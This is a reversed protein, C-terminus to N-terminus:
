WALEHLFRIATLIGRHFYELEMYENAAHGGEGVGYGLDFIPIGLQRQMVGILPVCGGARYAQATAGWEAQYARQLADIVAGDHLLTAHWNATSAIVEIHATPTAFGLVHRRFLAMVEDPVLNPVVRMSVKFGAEAPIVTMGGAGQHGGWVGNVDCTPLRTARDGFAAFSSGWLETTGSEAIAREQLRAEAVTFLDGTDPLLKQVNDYFGPIAIRGEDDHLSAIIKGVVHIPNQVVGGFGGSHLDRRPGRVIVEASVTGRVSAMLMPQGPQGGGDSIALIDAKLLDLNRAVFEAIQPSGCEEGGELIVKVNIPLRGTASLISELAAITISTGCKDDVAGRAYVRGERITPEFPPSLWQEPTEAPMVDYHAYILLTPKGAGADLWDAYVVPAPVADLLTVNRMGIRTLDAALWEATRQLEAAFAPDPSVSPIRLLEFYNAQLQEGHEIAWQRAREAPNLVITEIGM